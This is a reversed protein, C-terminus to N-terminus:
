KKVEENQLLSVSETLLKIDKNQKINTFSSIIISVVLLILLIINSPNNM